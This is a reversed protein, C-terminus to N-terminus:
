IDTDERFQGAGAIAALWPERRKIWGERLPMLAAPAEDLTGVAIEAQVDGLHFLPSGCKPCFSRGDYTEYHGTVSIQDPQWDAYYLFASGTEKRCDTCHCLGAKFPEGELTYRVAGCRCGGTYQKSM